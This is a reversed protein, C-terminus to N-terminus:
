AAARLERRGEPGQEPEELGDPSGADPDDLEGAQLRSMRPRPSTTRPSTRGPHQDRGLEPATGEAGHRPRHDGGGGGRCVADTVTKSITAKEADSLQWLSTFEFSSGEPLAKGLVSRCLIQLLSTFPRRLKAEQQAQIGDYYNRIDSEGTSNLGAPSQGFLRVLPIQLAGSLQQAFQLLVSDLGSFSYQSVEFEDDGDLVTMGENNQM